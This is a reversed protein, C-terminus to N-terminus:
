TRRMDFRFSRIAILVASATFASIVALDVWVPVLGSMGSLIHRYLDAVYSVPIAYLILKLYPVQSTDWFVNGLFMFAFNVLVIVTNGVEVHPMSGAIAYGISILCAASLLTTPMLILWTTASLHIPFLLRGLGLIVAMQVLSVVVRVVVQALIIDRRRAPTFALHRLTGRDRARLIPTATALLALELLALALMSPLLFAFTDGNAGADPAELRYEFPASLLGAKQAFTARASNMAMAVFSSHAPAALVRLRLDRRGVDTEPFIVLAVFHENKLAELGAELAVPQTKLISGAALESLFRQDQGSEHAGVIGIQLASQRGCSGQLGMMLVFGVPFIFSILVSLSDRYFEKLNMDLLAHFPTRKKSSM